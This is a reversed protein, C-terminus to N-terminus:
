SLHGQSRRTNQGFRQVSRKTLRYGTILLMCLVPGFVVIVAMAVLRLLLAQHYLSHGNSMADFIPCLRM